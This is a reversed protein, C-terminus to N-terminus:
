SEQCLVVRRRTPTANQTKGGGSIVVLYGRIVQATCCAQRTALPHEVL